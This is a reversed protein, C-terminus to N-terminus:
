CLGQHRTWHRTPCLTAPLLHSEVFAEIAKLFNCLPELLWSVVQTPPSCKLCGTSSPLDAELCSRGERVRRVRQRAQRGSKMCARWAASACGAAAPYGRQVTVAAASRAPCKAPQQRAAPSVGQTSYYGSTAHSWVVSTLQFPSIEISQSVTSSCTGNKWM